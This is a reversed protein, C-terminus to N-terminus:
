WVRFLFCGSKAFLKMCLSIIIAKDSVMGFDYNREMKLTAVNIFCFPTVFYILVHVTTPAVMSSHVTGLEHFKMEFLLMVLIVERIQIEFVIWPNVRRTVPRELLM